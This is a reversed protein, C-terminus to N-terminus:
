GDAMELRDRGLAKARYLADDVRKFFAEASGGDREDFCGLGLSTTVPLHQGDLQFGRNALDERFQEALHRAQEMSTDPMLVGFEEGGLRLLADSDRRFFERMREGFARLCADGVSHGHEDNIRKFFDIDMLLLSLESGHRQASACMAPFLNNFQYRNGLQTLVDTRSLTDLRQRQELLQLELALMTGYERHSRNLALLLYSLYFALTVLEARTGEPSVGLVVLGPLYLLLIAIIARRRRMAFNFAMATSFAITALTGILSSPRFEPALLVWAHALGWGISSVLIVGWHRDLWRQLEPESGGVPPQHLLRAALMLAFFGSGLLGVGFHEMPAASFLWCLLWALLYYVGGLRTRTRTDQVERWLRFREPSHPLDADTM